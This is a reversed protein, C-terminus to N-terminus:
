EHSLEQQGNRAQVQQQEICSKLARESKLVAKGVAQKSVGLQAGIQAYSLEYGFHLKLVQRAKGKLQQLCHELWARWSQQDIAEDASDSQDQLPATADIDDHRWAQDRRRTARRIVMIRLYSPIARSSQLGDVHHFMFDTLADVVLSEAESDSRLIKKAIAYLRAQEHQWLTQQAQRDRAQLQTLIEVRQYDIPEARAFLPM